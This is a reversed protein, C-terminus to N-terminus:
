SSFSLPVRAPVRVPRLAARTRSPRRPGWAWPGGRGRTLSGTASGCLGDFADRSDMVGQVVSCASWMHECVIRAGEMDPDQTMDVVKLLKRLPTAGIKAGDGAHARAMVLNTSFTGYTFATKPPGNPANIFSAYDSGM